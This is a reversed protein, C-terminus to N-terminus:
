SGFQYNTPAAFLEPLRDPPRPKQSPRSPQLDHAQLENDTLHTWTSCGCECRSRAELHTKKWENWESRQKFLSGFVGFMRCGDIADIFASIEDGTWSALQAPKVCYKTLEALYSKDRADKVKVIAFDQGVRKAWQIALAKADIYRADILAHVHVHWGRGENTVEVSYFGGLWNKALSSRRLSKFANKVAQIKEHSIEETNRVTLVVHKPQGICKTWWEISDRREAALRPACEPCFKNECRNWFSKTKHCGTCRAHSIETHCDRIQDALDHRGHEDLKAVLTEKWITQTSWLETQATVGRRELQLSECPDFPFAPSDLDIECHQEAATALVEFPVEDAATEGAPSLPIGFDAIM